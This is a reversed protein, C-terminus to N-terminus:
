WVPVIMQWYFKKRTPHLSTIDIVPFCVCAQKIIQCHQRANTQTVVFFCVVTVKAPKLRMMQSLWEHDMQHYYEKFSVCDFLIPKCIFVCVFKTSIKCHRYDFWFSGIRFGPPLCIQLFYVGGASIYKCSTYEVQQSINALIWIKDLSTIQSVTICLDNEKCASRIEEGLGHFLNFIAVWRLVCIVEIWKTNKM